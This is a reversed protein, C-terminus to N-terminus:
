VAGHCFLHNKVPLTIVKILQLGKESALLDRRQKCIKTKLSFLQVGNWFNTVQHRKLGKLKRKVSKSHMRLSVRYVRRPLVSSLCKQTQLSVIPVSPSYLVKIHEDVMAKLFKLEEPFCIELSSLWHKYLTQVIVYNITQEQHCTLWYIVTLFLRQM